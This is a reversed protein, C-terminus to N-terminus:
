KRRAYFRLDKGKMQVVTMNMQDMLRSMVREGYVQLLDGPMLNSAIVTHRRQSLRENLLSFLYERSVGQIMPETGLDDILLIDCALLRKFEGQRDEGGFQCGRMVEYLRYGTMKVPVYGRRILENQICNMLFSKGLGTNGIILLGLKDTDPYRTAYDRCVGRVALALQRQTRVGDVTEDDPLISEDYTEFTQVEGTAASTEDYLRQVVRQKFCACEERVGEGVYGTDRCVPCRYIPDLYNEGYGMAKLRARLTRENEAAQARIAQAEQEAREPHTLLIRAQRRFLAAGGYILPEMAPDAQIVEAIRAERTRENKDKLAAYEAKLARVVDNRTM